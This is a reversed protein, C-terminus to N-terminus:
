SARVKNNYKISILSAGNPLESKFKEFSSSSTNNKVQEHKKRLINVQKKDLLDKNIRLISYPEKLKNMSGKYVFQNDPKNYENIEFVLENNGDFKFQNKIIGKLKKLNTMKTTMDKKNVNRFMTDDLNHIDVLRNFLKKAANMPNHNSAM